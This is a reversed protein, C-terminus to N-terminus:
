AAVYHATSHAVTKAASCHGTAHSDGALGLGAERLFPRLQLRGLFKLHRAHARQHLVMHRMCPPFSQFLLQEFNQLSLGVGGGGDEAKGGFDDADGQTTDYLTLLKEGCAHLRGM